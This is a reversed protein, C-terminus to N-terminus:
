VTTFNRWLKRIERFNSYFKELIKIQNRWFMRRIEELNTIINRWFKREIEGFNAGVKELIKM